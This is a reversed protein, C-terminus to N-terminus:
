GAWPLTAAIRQPVVSRPSNDIIVLVPQTAHQACYVSVPSLRGLASPPRSGVVLLAAGASAKVLAPGAAGEVLHKLVPVDDRAHVEDLCLQLFNHYSHRIDQGARHEDHEAVTDAPSRYPRWAMIVDVACRRGRAEAIAWRLAGLSAASGDIGVAIAPTNRIAQGELPSHMVAM